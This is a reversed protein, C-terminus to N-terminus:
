SITMMAKALRVPAICAVLLVQVRWTQRKQGAFQPM